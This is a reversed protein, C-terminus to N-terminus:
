APIEVDVTYYTGCDCECMAEGTDAIHQAQEDTLSYLNVVGCGENPCVTALRKDIGKPWVAM